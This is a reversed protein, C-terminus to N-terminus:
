EPFRKEKKLTKFLVISGAIVGLFAVLAEGFGTWYMEYKGLFYKIPPWDNFRIMLFYILGLGIALDFHERVFEVSEKYNMRQNEMAYDLLTFGYFYSTVLMNLVVAFTTEWQNDPLLFLFGGIIMLIIYEYALNRLTIKIGRIVDKALQLFSFRYVTGSLKHFVEESVMSFVPSLVLLLLFGSFSALGSMLYKEYGEASAFPLYSLLFEFFQDLLFVPFSFIFVFLLLLLLYKWLVPLYFFAKLYATISSLINKFSM